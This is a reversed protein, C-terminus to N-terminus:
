PPITHLDNDSLARAEAKAYPARDLGHFAFEILALSDARQAFQHVVPLRDLRKFLAARVRNIRRLLRIRRFHRNTRVPDRGIHQLFKFAEPVLHKVKCAWKNRAYM